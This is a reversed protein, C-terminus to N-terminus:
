GGQTDSILGAIDQGDIVAQMLEKAKKVTAMDPEMVYASAGLAYCHGKSDSGSVNYLEVHWETDLAAQQAKLMGTIYDFPVNTEFCGKTAELIAPFNQLAEGTTFEKIASKMLLMQDRGRQRDGDAFAKRERAFALAANGDVHNIGKTFHYEGMGPIVTFDCESDVDLGGLTNVFDVFGGFNFRVYYQMNTGFLMNVSDVVAKIGYIGSHTLKDKQGNSVSLPVYYDRPISVLLIQKTDTNVTCIVNADTRSKDILPGRNDIGSFYVSYAAPPTGADEAFAPLGNIFLLAGSILLLALKKIGKM